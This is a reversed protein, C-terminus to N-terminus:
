ATPLTELVSDTTPNLQNRGSSSVLCSSVDTDVHHSQKLTETAGKLEDYGWVGTVVCVLNASAFVIMQSTLSCSDLITAVGGGVRGFLNCFGHATCRMYTPYSMPTSVYVSSTAGMVSARACVTFLELVWTPIVNKPLFQMCSVLRRFSSFTAQTFV